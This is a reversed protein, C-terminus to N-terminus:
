TFSKYKGPVWYEHMQGFYCGTIFNEKCLTQNPFQTLFENWFDQSLYKSTLTIDTVADVFRLILALWIVKRTLSALYTAISPPTLTLKQVLNFFALAFDPNLKTKCSKKLEVEHFNYYKAVFGIYEQFAKPIKQRMIWIKNGIPM